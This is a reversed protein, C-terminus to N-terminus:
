SNEVFRKVKEVPIVFEFQAGQGPGGNEKVSWGYVECIKRILYLGFGTGKGYGREFLHERFSKDLGVGDDKFCLKVSRESSKEAFIRITTTKEGYKLSNDILNYFVQTLLSDAIVELGICQNEVKVGKLDTFLSLANQVMKGIDVPVLEEVGIMEYTKAFDLIDCINKISDDVNSLYKELNPEIKCKNRALYLNGSIVGLKNRVDHRTFGGLVVIKENLLEAKSLASALVTQVIILNSIDVFVMFFGVILGNVALPGGSLGVDITSGDRRKRTTSFTVPGKSILGEIIKSEEEFGEPVIVDTIKQGKINEFVFGFLGTFSRNIETVRFDKDMFVIAEPNYAFLAKLTQQSEGLLQEQRKRESVDRVISVGYWQGNETFASFSLEVITTEGSINKLALEVTKGSMSLNGDSLQKFGEHMNQEYTATFQKTFHKKLAKTIQDKAYDLMVKASKNSYIIEGDDNLVLIADISSDFIARFRKESERLMVQSRTYQTAQRICSSLEAYIADPAGRKDIYRFAGSNLAKVAVEDRGKGSFLIFPTTIGIAKIENLFELGDKRNMQYDSVIVDFKKTKLMELAEQVSQASEVEIDAQMELCQKAMSLFAVDDDVHLICIPNSSVLAIKPERLATESM